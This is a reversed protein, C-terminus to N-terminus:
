NSTTTPRAPSSFVTVKGEPGSVMIPGDTVTLTWAEYTPDSPVRLVTGDDFTMELDGTKRVVATQVSTRSLEMAPGLETPRGEAYLEYTRDGRTLEFPGEVRITVRQEDKKLELTFAFDVVCQMVKSGKLDVDFSDASESIV